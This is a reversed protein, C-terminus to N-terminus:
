SQVASPKRALELLWRFGIFVLILFLATNLYGSIFMALNFHGPFGRSGLWDALRLGSVHPLVWLAGRVNVYWPVNPLYGVDIPFPCVWLNLAELPFATILAMKVPSKMKAM